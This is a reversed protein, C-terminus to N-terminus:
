QNRHLYSHLVFGFIAYMNIASIVCWMCFSKIVFAETYTFWSVFVVGFGSMALMGSVLSKDNKPYITRLFSLMSLMSYGALGVAPVPIGLIYSASSKRVLDCGSSVCIVPSGRLFSQTVYAAMILGMLSLIFIIRNLLLKSKTM